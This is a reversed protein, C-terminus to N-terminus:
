MKLKGYVTFSAYFGFIIVFFLIITNVSVITQINTSILLFCVIIYLLILLPIPTNELFTSSMWLITERLTFAALSYLFIIFIYLIIKSTKQGLKEALWVKIPKLQSKKQIYLIWLLWPFLTISTLIVSIWGDRKATELIPSLITVHNKLGISTLCIFIVHLISIKFTNNM